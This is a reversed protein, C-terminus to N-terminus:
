DLVSPAIEDIRIDVTIFIPRTRDRRKEACGESDREKRPINHISKIKSRNISQDKYGLDYVRM